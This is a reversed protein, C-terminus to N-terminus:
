LIDLASKVSRSTLTNLKQLYLGVRVATEVSNEAPCWSYLVTEIGVSSYRHSTRSLLQLSNTWSIDWKSPMSWQM